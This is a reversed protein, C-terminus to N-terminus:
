IAKISSVAVCIDGIHRLGDWLRVEWMGPAFERIIRAEQNRNVEVLQGPTFGSLVKNDM